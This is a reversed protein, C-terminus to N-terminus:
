RKKRSQITTQGLPILSYEDPLENVPTLDRRLLRRDVESVNRKAKKNEYVMRFVQRLPNKANPPFWRKYMEFVEMLAAEKKIGEKLRREIIQMATWRFGTAKLIERFPKWLARAYRGVWEEWIARQERLLALPLQAMEDPLLLADQIDDCIPKNPSGSTEDGYLDVGTVKQEALQLRNLIDAAVIMEYALIEVFFKPDGNIQRSLRDWGSRGLPRRKKRQSKRAM